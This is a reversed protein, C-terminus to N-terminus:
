GEGAGIRSSFSHSEANSLTARQLMGSWCEKAPWATRARVRGKFACYFHTAPRYRKATRRSTAFRLKISDESRECIPVPLEFEGREALSDSRVLQRLPTIEHARIIRYRSLADLLWWVGAVADWDIVDSLGNSDALSRIFKYGRFAVSRWRLSFDDFEV